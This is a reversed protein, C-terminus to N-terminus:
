KVGTGVLRDNIVANTQSRRENESMLTECHLSAVCILHLNVPSNSPTFTELVLPTGPVLKARGMKPVRHVVPREITNRSGCFCAATASPRQQSWRLTM